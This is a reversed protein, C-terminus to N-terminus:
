IVAIDTMPKHGDPRARRLGTRPTEASRAWQWIQLLRQFQVEFLRFGRMRGPKAGDLDFNARSLGRRGTRERAVGDWLRM